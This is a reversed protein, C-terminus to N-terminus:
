YVGIFCNYLVKLVTICVEEPSWSHLLLYVDNVDVDPSTSTINTQQTNEVPNYLKELAGKALILQKQKQSNRKSLKSPLLWRFSSWINDWARNARSIWNCLTIWDYVAQFCSIYRVM